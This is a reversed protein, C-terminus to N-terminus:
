GEGDHEAGGGVPTLVARAKAPKPSGSPLPPLPAWLLRAWKGPPRAHLARAADPEARAFSAVMGIMALTVVLASGGDSIL